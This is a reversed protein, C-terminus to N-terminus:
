FLEREPEICAAKENRPSNVLTSVPYCTMASSSYPTLLKRLEDVHDYDPDIWQPIANPHLIVPMRPHIPRILANAPTTIITCTTLETGSSDHWEEWLGAFVFPLHEKLQFYMPTKQRTGRVPKWEYFGDAPILCRKRKFSTKFSPKEHLTEARANIMKQGMKPDQAWSPILGWQTFTTTPARENVVTLVAQSPAINYRPQIEPVPTAGIASLFTETKAVHTLTFRGPM